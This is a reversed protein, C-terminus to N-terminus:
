NQRPNEFNFIFLTYHAKIIKVQGARISGAKVAGLYNKPSVGRWRLGLPELPVAEMGLVRELGPWM